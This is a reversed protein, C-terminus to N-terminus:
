SESTAPKRRGSVSDTHGMGIFMSGQVVVGIIFAVILIWLAWRSEGAVTEAMLSAGTLSSLIILGWDFFLVILLAAVAGLVVAMILSLGDGIDVGLITQITALSSFGAAFGALGVLIYQLYIALVAGLVGVGLAILLTLWEPQEAFLDAAINSAFLAGVIGVYLWYLRRGFLLIAIALLATLIVTLSFTM